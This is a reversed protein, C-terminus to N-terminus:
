LEERTGALLDIANLIEKRTIDADEIHPLYRIAEALVHIAERIKQEM